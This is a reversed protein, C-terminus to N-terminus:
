GAQDSQLSSSCLRPTAALWAKVELTTHTSLNDLVVHIEKGAHTEGSPAPVGPVTRRHPRPLLRRQGARLRRGLRRVPLEVNREVTASNGVVFALVETVGNEYEGYDM